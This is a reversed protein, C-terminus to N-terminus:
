LLKLQEELLRTRAHHEFSVVAYHSSLLQNLYILKQYLNVKEALSEQLGALEDIFYFLMNIEEGKFEQQILFDGFKQESWELLEEETLHFSGKLTEKIIQASEAEHDEVILRKVKALQHSLQQM